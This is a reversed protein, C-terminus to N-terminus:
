GECIEKLKKLAKPWAENFYDKFEESSDMDISLLTKGNAETFTYNELAGAWTEAIEGSTIEQNNNLVGIHEISIFKHPINEKIRSVMGGAAGNEDIGIFLIKSGKEWSGKYSSGPNFEATWEGYQKEDIMTKYVHETSADITIEFHLKTLAQSSEVYKKFNNMISQWGAQQMEVSNSGEAEFTEQVVTKGDRSEFVIEVKRGDLLTYAILEHNRVKNYVGEFDFGVSGDKAEMRTTFKGGERLDNEAKPSHWVESATNWKVIHKPDTWYEWVKSVPANITAEVTITTKETTIM